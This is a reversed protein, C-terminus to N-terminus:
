GAKAAKVMALFGARIGEPLKPWAAVVADSLQGARQNRRIRRRRMAKAPEGAGDRDAPAQVSRGAPGVNGHHLCPGPGIHSPRPFFDGRWEKGCAPHPFTQRLRNKIFQMGWGPKRTLISPYVM